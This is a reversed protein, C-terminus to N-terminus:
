PLLPLFLVTVTATGKFGSVIFISCCMSLVSFAQRHCPQKESSSGPMRESMRLRARLVQLFMPFVESLRSVIAHQDKGKPVVEGWSYISYPAKSRSASSM